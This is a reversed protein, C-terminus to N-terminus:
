RLLEEVSRADLVRVSLDELESASLSTLKEAAWSPLAGFRKEILRRIIKREGDQRAAKFLEHERIDIDIPM